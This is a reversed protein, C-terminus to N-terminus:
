RLVTDRKRIEKNIFYIVTLIVFFISIAKKEQWPIHYIFWCIACVALVPIVLGGPVKFGAKEEGTKKFRLKIMSLVVALYIILVSSSALVALQKFGGSSAL